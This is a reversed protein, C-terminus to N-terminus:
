CFAFHYQQWYQHRWLPSRARTYVAVAFILASVIIANPLAFLLFGWFHAAWSVPGFNSADVWPNLKALLIGISVGLMPVMAVLAAGWFRGMVYALKNAIKKDHESIYRGAEMSDTGVLFMGLAQKGLVKVDTRPIPKTYGSEAM